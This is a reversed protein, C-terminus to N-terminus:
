LELWGQPLGQLWLVFRYNLRRKVTSRPPLSPGTDSSTLGDPTIPQAQPGRRCAETDLMAVQDPLTPTPDKDTRGQWSKASEGKWDRSSPTRWGTMEEPPQADPTGWLHEVFNPLQQGRTSDQNRRDQSDQSNPTRYDRAAATPWLLTQAQLDGGGSDRGLEKKREASEAGGTVTRPTAWLRTVGTLSDMKDPHNGASEGDETRATPWLSTAQRQLDMMSPSGCGKAYEGAKRKKDAATKATQNAEDTRGDYATKPTNWLRDMAETAQKGFEGAAGAIRGDQTVGSLGHPTMWM